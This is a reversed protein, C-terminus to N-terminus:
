KARKIAKTFFIYDIGSITTSLGVLWRYIFILGINELDIATM